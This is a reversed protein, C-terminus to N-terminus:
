EPLGALRMGELMMEVDAPRTWLTRFNSLRLLPDARRIDELHRRAEEINGAHANAIVSQRKAIMWNPQRALTRALWKVAEDYKRLGLNAAGMGGDSIFSEPDMPNLRQARAIQELAMQHEGLLVSVWGRTQWGGALNPNISLARDILVAGGRFEGCVVAISHGAWCLAEADDHGIDAVREALRRTEAQEWEQDVIWGQQVRFSYIRAIMGHPTPFNEDLEIARRYLELANDQAERTMISAQAFGRLFCDYADLNGAPKRRAREMEAQTIKPAIAGVVSTTVQDQLEFVDELSGDFRDAWLHAGSEGDILQGTIRVKNAAKRVSGELVYRVGLERGVQKIDVARGKYTFSSNRAIVFLSKFRSLATIIDEVMGDAFYEQDPDGSMNQFPLVAISPRDPLTLPVDDTPPAPVIVPSVVSSASVKWDVPDWQVGFALVTREINKLSLAGLDAFTAKLRGAVANHVDGSIVIGGAPAEAELRAAVNVGDGYLDDEEVILDGLHLGIRFVIATDERQDRNAAAMAQQFEIAAGLADVASPFEVLAGDGTLKVLRGGHRALTPELRETRHAKLRTLTGNEDRGMLRSYGVVDAALIAALRRVAREGTLFSGLASGGRWPGAARSLQM